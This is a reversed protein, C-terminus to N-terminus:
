EKEKVAVPLPSYKPKAAQKARIVEIKTWVRALEADGADHMNLANALCLAALTTMVGGVEQFPEGKPRGYVYDVLAHADQATCGLAQVLELSEELFRHNREERDGAVVPGFCEMLWPQVRNQFPEGTEWIPSGAAKHACGEARCHDGRDECVQDSKLKLAVCDDQARYEYASFRERWAQVEGSPQAAVPAIYLKSGAPVHKADFVCHTFAGATVNPEFPQAEGVPDVPQLCAEKFQRIGEAQDAFPVGGKTVVLEPVPKVPEATKVADKFADRTKAMWDHVEDLSTMGRRKAFEWKLPHSTLTGRELEEKCIALFDASMSHSKVPEAPQQFVPDTSVSVHWDVLAKVAEKANPFSDATSHINTLERDVADKWENPEAPQPTTYVRVPSMSPQLMAGNHVEVEIDPYTDTSTIHLTACAEGRQKVLERYKEADEKDLANRSRAFDFGHKFTARQQRAHAILRLVTSKRYAPEQDIFGSDNTTEYLCDHEPLEIQAEFEARDKDQQTM